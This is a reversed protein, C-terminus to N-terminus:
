KLADHKLTVFEEQARAQGWGRDRQAVVKTDSSARLEVLSKSEQQNLVSGRFDDTDCMGSSVSASLFDINKVQLYVPLTEVTKVSTLFREHRM